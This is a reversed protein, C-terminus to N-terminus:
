DLSNLLYYFYYLDYIQENSIQERIESDGQYINEYIPDNRFPITYQLVLIKGGREPIYHKRIFVIM